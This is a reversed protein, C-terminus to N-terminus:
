NLNFKEFFDNNKLVFNGFLFALRPLSVWYFTPFKGISTARITKWGTALTQWGRLSNLFFGAIEDVTAM